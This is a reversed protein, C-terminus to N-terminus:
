RPANRGISHAFVLGPAYARFSLIDTACATRPECSGEAPKRLASAQEYQNEQCECAKSHESRGRSGFTKRNTDIDMGTCRAQHNISLRDARPHEESPRTGSGHLNPRFGMVNLELEDSLFTRPIGASQMKSEALGRM